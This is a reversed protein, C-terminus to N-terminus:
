LPILKNSHTLRKLEEINDITVLRNKKMRGFHTIFPKIMQIHAGGIMPLAVGKSDALMYHSEDLIQTIQCPGIWNAKFKRAPAQLESLRPAFYYVLDGKAYVHQELHFRNEKALMTKQEMLKRDIVFSKMTNFRENISTM